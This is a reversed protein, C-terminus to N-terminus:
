MYDCSDKGVGESLWCQAKLMPLLPAVVTCCEDLPTLHQRSHLGFAARPYLIHQLRGCDFFGVVNCDVCPIQIQALGEDLHLHTIISGM